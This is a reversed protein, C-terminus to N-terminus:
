QFLSVPERGRVHQSTCDTDFTPIHAFSDDFPCLIADTIFLFSTFLIVNLPTYKICIGDTSSHIQMQM